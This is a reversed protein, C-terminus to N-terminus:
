RPVVTTNSGMGTGGRGTGLCLKSQFFLVFCFASCSSQTSHTSPHLCYGSKEFAPAAGKETVVFLREQTPLGLVGATPYNRVQEGEYLSRKSLLSPKSSRLVIEM